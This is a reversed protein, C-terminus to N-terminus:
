QAIRGVLTLLGCVQDSLFEVEDKLMSSALFNKLGKYEQVIVDKAFAYEKYLAACLSAGSIQGDPAQRVINLLADRLLEGVGLRRKDVLHRHTAPDPTSGTRMDAFDTRLPVETPM